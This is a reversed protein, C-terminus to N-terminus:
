EGLFSDQEMCPEPDMAAPAVPQRNIHSGATSRNSRFGAIKAAVPRSLLPIMFVLGAAVLMARKSLYRM